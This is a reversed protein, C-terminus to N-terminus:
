DYIMEEREMEYVEDPDPTPDAVEAYDPCIKCDDYECERVPNHICKTMDM